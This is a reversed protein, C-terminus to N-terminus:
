RVRRQRFAAQERAHAADRLRRNDAQLARNTDRLAAIDRRAAARGILLAGTLAIIVAAALLSVPVAAPRPQPM